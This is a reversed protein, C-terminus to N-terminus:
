CWCWHANLLLLVTICTYISSSIYNSNVVVSLLQFHVYYIYIYLKYIYIHIKFNLPHAVIINNDNVYTDTCTCVIYWLRIVIIIRFQEDIPPVIMKWDIYDFRM